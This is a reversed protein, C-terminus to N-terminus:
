LKVATGSASVMLMGGRLGGPRVRLGRGGRDGRRCGEPPGRRGDGRYRDEQSGEFVERLRRFTGTVVGVYETVPRGDIAATTRVIM